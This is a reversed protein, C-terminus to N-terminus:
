GRAHDHFRRDEVRCTGGQRGSCGDEDGAASGAGEPLVRDSSECQRGDLIANGNSIWGSNTESTANIIVEMRRLEQQSKRLRVGSLQDNSCFRFSVTLKQSM